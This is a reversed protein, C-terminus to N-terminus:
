LKHLTQYSPKLQLATKLFLEPVSVPYSLIQSTLPLIQPCNLLVTKLTFGNELFCKFFLFFGTIKHYDRSKKNYSPSTLEIDSAGVHSVVIFNSNELLTAAFLRLPLRVQGPLSPLRLLRTKLFGSSGAM